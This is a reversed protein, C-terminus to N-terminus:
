IEGFELIQRMLTKGSILDVIELRGEQDIDDLSAIGEVGFSQEKAKMAFGIIGIGQEPAVGQPDIALPTRLYNLVPPMDWKLEDPTDEEYFTCTNGNSPVHLRFVLSVKNELSPNAIRISTINHLWDDGTALSPPVGTVGGVYVRVELSDTGLRGMHKVTWLIAAYALFFAGLGSVVQLPLAQQAWKEWMAVVLGYVILLAAGIRAVKEPALIVGKIWTYIDRIDFAAGAAHIATFFQKARGPIGM